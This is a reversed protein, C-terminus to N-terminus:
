NLTERSPIDKHVAVAGRVLWALIGARESRLNHLLKEADQESLEQDLKPLNGPHMARCTFLMSEIDGSSLGTVEHLIKTLVDQNTM